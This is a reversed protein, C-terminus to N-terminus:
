SVDGCVAPAAPNTVVWLFAKVITAGAPIGGVPVTSLGRGITSSVYGGQGTWNYYHAMEEKLPYTVVDDAPCGTKVPPIGFTGGCCAAFASTQCFFLIAASVVFGSVGRSRLHKAGSM